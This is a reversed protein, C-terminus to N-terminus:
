HSLTCRSVQHYQEPLMQHDTYEQWGVTEEIGHSSLFEESPRHSRPNFFISIEFSKGSVRSDEKSTISNSGLGGIMRTKCPSIESSFIINILFTHFQCLGCSNKSIFLSGRTAETYM